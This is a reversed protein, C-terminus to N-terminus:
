RMVAAVKGTTDVDVVLHEVGNTTDAKVGGSGDAALKVWGASVTGSYKALMIGGVQVVALGDDVAAAVGCFHDGAVCTGVEGRGTVKCVQGGELGNKATFTAMVEGIGEFSVKKMTKVREKKRFCFGM